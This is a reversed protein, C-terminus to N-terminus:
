AKIIYLARGKVCAHDTNDYIAANLIVKRPAMDTM